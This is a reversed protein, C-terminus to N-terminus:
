NYDVLIPVLFAREFRDAVAVDRWGLPGSRVLTRYGPVDVAGPVAVGIGNLRHDGAVLPAAATIALDLTEEPAATVDFPVRRLETVAGTLDCRGITIQGIGLYIGIAHISERVLGILTARPGREHSRREIGVEALVEENILQ